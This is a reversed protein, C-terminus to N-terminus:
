GVGKYGVQCGSILTHSQLLALLWRLQQLNKLYRQRDNNFDVDMM